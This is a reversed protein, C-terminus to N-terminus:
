LSAGYQPMVRPTYNVAKSTDNVATIHKNNIAHAVSLVVFRTRLTKALKFNFVQRLFFLSSRKDADLKEHVTIALGKL